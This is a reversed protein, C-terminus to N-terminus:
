FRRHQLAPLQARVQDLVRADLDACVVGEGEAQVALVRGWPDVV